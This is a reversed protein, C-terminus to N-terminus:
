PREGRGAVAHADRGVPGSPGPGPVHAEDCCHSSGELQVTLHKIPYRTPLMHRLDDLVRERSGPPVEDALVVHATVANYGSTLTWAHLDHVRQVGDVKLIAGEIEELDLDAPTGELLIHLAPGLLRASGVVLVVGIAVSIIPDALSWHLTLMLAAAVIAGVSGIADGIVHLFAARLNLNGGSAGILVRESALNALLGLAAVVLMPLSRVEPPSGFRHSAEVFIYAAIGWLAAGSALAALIEVRQNGYSRRASHPRGALWAAFLALSLTAVDTAMHGADALLALSNTLVGGVIEAVTFSATIAIAVLLARGHGGHAEGAPHHEGKHGREFM